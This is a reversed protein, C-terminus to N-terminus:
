SPPGGGASAASADPPAEEAVPAPRRREPPVRAAGSIIEAIKAASEPDMEGMIQSAVKTELKTVVAAAMDEDLTALQVAAADPRMRSYFGVLKEHAKRSFDDRRALWTKYEQTKAELQRSRKDLEAEMDKIKKAQWAFRADAAADASNFCYQQAATADPPLADLPGPKKFISEAGADAPSGDGGPAKPAEPMVPKKAATVVPKLPRVPSLAERKQVPPVHAGGEPDSPLAGTVIPSWAAKPAVRRPMQVPKHPSPFFRPDIASPTRGVHSPEPAELSGGPATAVTPMWGEQAAVPVAPVMMSAVVLLVPMAFGPGTPRYPFPKEMM